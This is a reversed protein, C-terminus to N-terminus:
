PKKIVTLLGGERSIAHVIPAGPYSELDLNFRTLAVIYDYRPAREAEYPSFIKLDPRAYVQILHAPGEVWISANAPAVAALYDAAERYSTGWYDLEFRRFAGQQGGIFANYYVYEYPHLRVGEVIGPLVVLIILAAQWGRQKVREWLLGTVMFVPPLVFIIQRFNDYLPARTIIFGLLPLFFWVASLALLATSPGRRRKLADVSAIAAGAAFLFWVPETLQIGLLVPLYARPLATSAYTAGAFLVQGRWPYDSMVKVSESLHGIPDPWLYPWTLYMVVAAFIGSALLAPLAKLRSRRLAYAAVMLGAFPGLVRISTTVGLLLSAPVLNLLFARASPIRSWMVALLAWVLVAVSVQARLFLVFYRDVYVEPGSTHIDTAFRSIFNLEGAAAARVSRQLWAHALPTAALLIFIATLGAASFLLLLRRSQPRMAGFSIGPDSDVMKLGFFLSLMFFTMFPIDKPSIFAHGWILPQTALLLTAGLAAPRSLWRRCIADFAVMGVVFTVFYLLHRLDSTIWPLVMGLLRAGLAVVMVYAPGYNDYTNGTLPITGAHLWTSYAQLARDAYKYFQLEDWSEGYQRTVAFGLVLVLLLATLRIL